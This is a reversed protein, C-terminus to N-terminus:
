ANATISRSTITRSTISQGIIDRSLVGIFSIGSESVTLQSTYMTGTAAERRWMTYVGFVYDTLTGDSNLTGAATPLHIVDDDVIAPDSAISWEGTNLPDVMTVATYGAMTAVTSTTSATLTGDGAIFTQTGMAPYTVGNAFAPMAFTGDGSPASISLCSKGSGFTLTTLTGLGTTTIVKGTSGVALPSDITDISTAAAPEKVALVFFGAKTSSSTFATNIASTGVNEQYMTGTTPQDRGDPNYGGVPLTLSAGATWTDNNQNSSANNDGFLVLIDTATVTPTISPGAHSTVATGEASSQTGDVSSSTARGSLGIVSFSYTALTDVAVTFTHLLGTTANEARWAYINTNGGVALPSGTVAVWTNGKSDVPTSPVVGNFVNVAIGLFNGSTTLAVSTATLVPTGATKYSTSFAYAM